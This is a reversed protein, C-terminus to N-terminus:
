RAGQRCVLLARSCASPRACCAGLLKCLVLLRCLVPLGPSLSGFLVGVAAVSRRVRVPPGARRRTGRWVHQWLLTAASRQVPKVLYDAAGAQLASAIFDESSESSMVARLLWSSLTLSALLPAPESVSLMLRLCM